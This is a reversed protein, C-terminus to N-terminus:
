DPKSGLLTSTHQTCLPSYTPLSYAFTAKRCTPFATHIGPEPICDRTSTHRACVLNFTLDHSAAISAGVAILITSQFTPMDPVVGAFSVGLEVHIFAHASSLWMGMFMYEEVMVLLVSLQRLSGFMLLNIRRLSITSSLIKGFYLLSLLSAKRAIQIDLLPFHTVGQHRLALLVVIGFICQCLTLVNPSSFQYQSLVNQMLALCQNLVDSGLYIAQSAFPFHEHRCLYCRVYHTLWCSRVKNFLTFLVSSLGFALATVPGTLLFRSM